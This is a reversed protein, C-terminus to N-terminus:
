TRVLRQVGGSTLSKTGRPSHPPSPAGQGSGLNFKENRVDEKSRSSSCRRSVVQLPRSACAKVLSAMGSYTVHSVLLSITFSDIVFHFAVTMKVPMSSAVPSTLRRPISHPREGCSSLLLSFFFFVGLYTFTNRQSVVRSIALYAAFCGAGLANRLGKGRKRDRLGRGGGLFNKKEREFGRRPLLCLCRVGAPRLSFISAIM